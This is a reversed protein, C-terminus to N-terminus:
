AGNTHCIFSNIYLRSQVHLDLLITRSKNTPPTQNWDWSLCWSDWSPNKRPKGQDKWAFAPNTAQTIVAERWVRMQWGLIWHQTAHSVALIKFYTMLFFLIVKFSGCSPPGNIKKKNYSKLLFCISSSFAAVFPNFSSIESRFCDCSPLELLLLTCCSFCSIHM